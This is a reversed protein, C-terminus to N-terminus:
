EEARAAADEINDNPIEIKFLSNSTLSTDYKAPLILSLILPLMRISLQFDLKHNGFLLTATPMVIKPRLPEAFAVLCASFSRFFFSSAFAASICFFFLECATLSVLLRRRHQLHCVRFLSLM